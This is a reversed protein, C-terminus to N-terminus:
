AQLQRCFPLTLLIRLLPQENQFDNCLDETACSPGSRQYTPM